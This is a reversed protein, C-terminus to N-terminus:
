FKNGSKGKKQWCSFFPCIRYYNKGSKGLIKKKKTLIWFFPLDPLLNIVPNVRKKDFNPTGGVFHDYVGSFLHSPTRSFNHFGRPSTARSRRPPANAVKKRPYIVMKEDRYHSGQPGRAVLDLVCGCVCVKKFKSLFITFGTIFKNGSKGKKQM